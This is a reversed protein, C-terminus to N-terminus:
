INRSERNMDVNDIWFYFFEKWMKPYNKNNVEQKVLHILEKYGEDKLDNAKRLITGMTQVVEM